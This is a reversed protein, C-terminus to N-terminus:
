SGNKTTKPSRRETPQEKWEETTKRSAVRGTPEESDKEREFRILASTFAVRASVLAGLSGVGFLMWYAGFVMGGRTEPTFAGFGVTSLTIMSMYTAQGLTKDEGPYMYFFGAGLVMFLVFVSGSQMVPVFAARLKDEQTTVTAEDVDDLLTDEMVDEFMSVLDGIIKSIVIIAIFVYLGVTLQGLVEAPTIDGYGVTTVIQSILYVSEELRLTRNKSFHRSQFVIVNTFLYLGSFLWVFLCFSECFHAKTPREAGKRLHPVIPASAVIGVFMLAFVYSALGEDVPIDWNASQDSSGEPSRIGLDKPANPGRRPVPDDEAQPGRRPELDDEVKGPASANTANWYRPPVTVEPDVMMGLAGHHPDLRAAIRTAIALLQGAFPQARGETSIQLQQAIVVLDRVEAAIGVALETVQIECSSPDERRSVNQDSGAHIHIDKTDVSITIPFSVALLVLFCCHCVGTLGTSRSM